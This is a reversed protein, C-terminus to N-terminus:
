AVFATKDAYKVTVVLSLVVEHQDNVMKSSAMDIAIDLKPQINKGQFAVVSEPSEFTMNKTYVQSIGFQPAKKEVDQTSDQAVENVDQVVEEVDKVSEEAAEAKKKKKFM